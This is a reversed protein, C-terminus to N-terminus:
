RTYRLVQFDDYTEVVEPAKFLPEFGPFYTDGPHREHIQSVLLEDLKDLFAAYIEAGGIVFLPGDTMPLEKTSHIVEVGEAQWHPDRTLVINRRKPLPRGISEYTKRGMLIPYGSTTRKFFALDEPLHWPLTGNRGIVRDPTMAVIAVLKM